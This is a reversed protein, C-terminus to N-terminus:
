FNMDYTTQIKSMNAVFNHGVKLKLGTYGRLEKTRGKGIRSFESLRNALLKKNFSQISLGENYKKPFEAVYAARMEEFSYRVEDDNVPNFHDNLFASFDDSSLNYENKRDLENEIGSLKGMKNYDSLGKLMRNLVGSLENAIINLKVRGDKIGEDQFSRQFLIHRYRRYMGAPIHDPMENLCMVLKLKNAVLTKKQIGKREVRITPQTVLNQFTENIDNTKPNAEDIFCLTKDVLEDGTFQNEGGLRSLSTAVAKDGLVKMWIEPVMSKGSGPRGEFILMEEAEITSTLVYGSFQDIVRVQDTPMRSEIDLFADYLPCEAEPSYNAASVIRSLREPTHEIFEHTVLELWGNKAHFWNDAADFDSYLKGRTKNQARYKAVITKATGETAEGDLGDTIMLNIVLSLVSSLTLEDYVGKETNYNWYTKDDGFEYLLHPNLHSFWQYFNIVYGKRLASLKAKRTKPDDESDDDMYRFYATRSPCPDLEKVEEIGLKALEENLKNLQSM